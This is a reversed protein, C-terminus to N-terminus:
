RSTSYYAGPHIFYAGPHIAIRVRIYQSLYGSTYYYVCPYMTGQDVYQLVYKKPAPPLNYLPRLLAAPISLPINTREVVVDAMVLINRAHQTLKGISIVKVRSYVFIGNCSGDEVPALCSDGAEWFKKNGSVVAKPIWKTQCQLKNLIDPADYFTRKM